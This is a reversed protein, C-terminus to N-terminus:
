GNTVHFVIIESNPPYQYDPYKKHEAQIFADHEAPDTVHVLVRDYLNGGIRLRVRPDRAVSQDWIRHGPYGEGAPRTSGLYLQGNVSVCYINVSHPLGLAWHTQVQIVPYQDTFSWDAVPQAVVPGSLWLGPSGDHPPLGTLRFIVLLVILAAVIGAITKFVAKM